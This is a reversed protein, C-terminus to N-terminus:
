NKNVIFDEMANKFDNVNSDILTDEKESEFNVRTNSIKELRDKVERNFKRELVERVKSIKTVDRNLSNEVSELDHIQKKFSKIFRPLDFSM